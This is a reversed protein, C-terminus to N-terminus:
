EVSIILQDPKPSGPGQEIHQSPIGLAVLWDKLEAAWLLGTEGGPYRIIIRKDPEELWQSVANKVPALAIIYAANRPRAWDDADLVFDSSSVVNTVLILVVFLVMSLLQCQQQPSKFRHNIM